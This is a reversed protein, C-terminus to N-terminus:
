QLADFASVPAGNYGDARFKWSGDEQKKLITIFKGSATGLVTDASDRTIKYYGIDYALDNAIDRDQFRFAITMGHNNMKSYKFMNEFGGIFASQGLEFGEESPPMYIADEEYISKILEADLTEYAKTFTNYVEDIAAKDAATHSETNTACAVISLVFVILIIRM